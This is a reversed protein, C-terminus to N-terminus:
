RAKELLARVESLFAVRERSGGAHINEFGPRKSCLMGSTYCEIEFEPGTYEKKM